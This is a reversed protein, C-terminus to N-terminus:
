NGRPMKLGAAQPHSDIRALRRSRDASVRVEGRSYEFAPMPSPRDFRDSRELRSHVVERRCAEACGTRSGQHLVGPTPLLRWETHSHFGNMARRLSDCPQVLLTFSCTVIFSVPFVIRMVPPPEPM